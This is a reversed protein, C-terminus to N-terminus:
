GTLVVKLGERHVMEAMALRSPGDIDPAPNEAFWITDEFKQAVLEDDIPIPSFKVGLWEATRQAVDIETLSRVKVSDVM